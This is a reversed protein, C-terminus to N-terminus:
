NSFFSWLKHYKEFKIYSIIIFSSSDFVFLSLFSSSTYIIRPSCLSSRPLIEYLWSTRVFPCVLLLWFALLILFSPGATVLNRDVSISPACLWEDEAVKRDHVLGIPLGVGHDLCRLRCFCLTIYM